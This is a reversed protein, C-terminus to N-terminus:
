VWITKIWERLGMGPPKSGLFFGLRNQPQSLRCTLVLHYLCIQPVFHRGLFYFFTFSQFCSITPSFAVLFNHEKLFYSFFFVPSSLYTFLFSFGYFESKMVSDWSVILFNLQLVCLYNQFM